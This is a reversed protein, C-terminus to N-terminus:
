DRQSTRKEKGAGRLLLVAPLTGLVYAAIALAASDIGLALGLLASGILAFILAGVFPSVKPGHETM